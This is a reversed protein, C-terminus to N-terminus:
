FDRELQKNSKLIKEVDKKVDEKLEYKDLIDKNGNHAMCLGAYIVSESNEGAKALLKMGAKSNLVEAIKEKETIPLEIFTIKKTVEKQIGKYKHTLDNLGKVSQMLFPNNIKIPKVLYTKNEETIENIYQGPINKKPTDFVVKKTQQKELAEIKKEFMLRQEELEKEKQKLQSQNAKLHKKAEPINVGSLRKDVDKLKKEFKSKRQKTMPILRAAKYNYEYSDIRRNLEEIKEEVVKKENIKFEKYSANARLVNLEKELKYELMTWRAKEKRVPDTILDLKLEEFNIDGVDIENTDKNWADNIRKQKTELKQFIFPDISNEILPYTIRVHDFENGFRWVRGEVQDLDVPNWPLHLNYLDTTKTQLDIGEKIIESGILVKIQGSNFSEKIQEIEDDKSNYKGSIIEVQEEKYNLEKVLYEKVLSHYDVGRPMYIIQNAEPNLTNNEKIAEIAFKIKPSNEVFDSYDPRVGTYFRSLYPSLTINQLETIAMITGAEPNDFLEEAKQILDWQMSSADLVVKKKHKEPREIGLDDGSKYDFYENILLRLQRANKFREIVDEQALTRNAKVVFTSKMDMFATMFVNVNTLGMEEMRRKAMLSLMSYYELPSNSFPTATLGTVGRGNHKNLIYQTALYMKVARASSRGGRVNRYENAEGKQLKAGVFINKYRHMEDIILHDFGIDEFFFKGSTGKIGRGIMEEAKQEEKAVTRKNSNFGSITDQLSYVFSNYTEEKFGLRSMGEATIITISGSDIKIKDGKIFKKSLDGLGNIKVGPLLERVENIWKKSVPKPVIVLPKKVWKRKLLENASIIATITKGAGVEHALCGVGKNVLFGAGSIQYHRLVLEDGKFNKNIKSFLPVKSYDPSAFSNRKRNYANLIIKQKELSLEEKIFRNFLKESVEKRRKRIEANQKADRGTVPLGNVYAEVEWHSSDEYAEYPLLDLYEIFDEKLNEESGVKLESVLPDVPLIRIDQMTVRAPLVALLGKKQKKYAEKELEKKDTELVDLKDYIDGQFYNFDTYYDGKYYNIKDRLNMGTLEKLSKNEFYSPDIEGTATTNVWLEKEIESLSNEKISIMESEVPPLVEIELDTKVKQKLRPKPKIIEKTEIDIKLYEDSIEPFDFNLVDIIKGNIFKEKGFRGNREEEVGIINGPNETFYKDESLKELKASYSLDTNRQVILIDTGINTTPFAGNPLRYAELLNGTKSIEKKAFNEKSRLFGSPMVYVVLGSEKTINLSRKLFYESYEPINKEEGMGKYRGRHDGYPPNGVVLDYKQSYSNNEGRENMFVSEFPKNMININPGFDDGLIIRAAKASVSNIEYGFINSERNIEKDFFFNGKGISPELINMATGKVDIYRDISDWVKGIIEPPTYYEDLLGRGQAGKKEMGGAGTYVKKVDERETDTFIDKEELLKSIEELTPEPREEEPELDFLGPQYLNENSEKILPADLLGRECYSVFQESKHVEVADLFSLGFDKCSKRVNNVFNKNLNGGGCVVINSANHYLSEKIIEASDFTTVKNIALVENKTNLLITFTANPNNNFLDKTIKVADEPGQIVDKGAGSTQVVEYESIPAIKEDSLKLQEKHTTLDPLISTWEDNGIVVHYQVNIDIIKGCKVLRKTLNIDEPSPTSNGTPHNHLFVVNKANLLLPGKFVERPHVLSSSITGISVVETGLLKNQGDLSMVIFKERDTNKLERYINAVEEPKRIRLERAYTLKNNKIDILKNNIIAKQARHRKIFEQKTEYADKAAALVNKDSLKKVGGGDKIISRMNNILNIDMMGNARMGTEDKPELWNIYASTLLEETSFGEGMNVDEEIINIDEESILKSYETELIGIEKEDANEQYKQKILKELREIEKDNNKM